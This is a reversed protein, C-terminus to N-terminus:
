QKVSFPAPDFRDQVQHSRPSRLAFSDIGPLLPVLISFLLMCETRCRLEHRGVSAFVWEVFHPLSPHERRTKKTKNLMDAYRVVVRTLSRIVTAVRDAIAMSSSDDEDVLRLSFINNHMMELVFNDM